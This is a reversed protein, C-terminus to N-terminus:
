SVDAKTKISTIGGPRSIDTWWLLPRHVWRRVPYSFQVCRIGLHDEAIFVGNVIGKKRADLLLIDKETPSESNRLSKVYYTDDFKSYQAYVNRTLDILSESPLAGPHEQLPQQLAMIATVTAFGPVLFETIMRLIEPIRISAPLTNQLVILLKSRTLDRRRQIEYSSPRFSYETAALLDATVHKGAWDFCSIHFLPYQSDGLGCVPNCMHFTVRLVNDEYTDHLHFAFPSSYRETDIDLLVNTSILGLSQPVYLVHL